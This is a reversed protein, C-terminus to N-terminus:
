PRGQAPWGRRAQQDAAFVHIGAVLAPLVFYDIGIARTSATSCACTPPGTPRAAAATTSRTNRPSRRASRRAPNRDARRRDSGDPAPHQGGGAPIEDARLGRACDQRRHGRRSQAHDARPKASRRISARASLLIRPSAKMPTIASASTSACRRSRCWACAPSSGPSGMGTETHVHVACNVDPVASLVGGHLTFGPRNVGASERRPRRGHRGQRPQVGDGRHVPARPAEDPVQAGRGPVRMACHNYIVDDWGYHAFLRYVAALDVRAQWEEASIGAPTVTSPKTPKNM